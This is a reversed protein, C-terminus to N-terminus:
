IFFIVYGKGSLDDPLHLFRGLLQPILKRFPPGALLTSSFLQQHHEAGRQGVRIIDHKQLPNLGPGRLLSVAQEHAIRLAAQLQLFTIQFHKQGQVRLAYDIGAVRAPAIHFHHFLQGPLDGKRYDVVLIFLQVHVRHLQVIGLQSPDHRPM